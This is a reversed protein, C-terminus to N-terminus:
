GQTKPTQIPLIVIDVAAQKRAMRIGNRIQTNYSDDLEEFQRTQNNWNGSKSGDRTQYVLSVRGMRLFDVQQNTGPLAGSYADMTRGYESEIQYANLVAGFKESVSVNSQSLINKLRNVRDQRESKLFPLDLEIFKELGDLMRLMLPPIQRRIISIKDINTRIAQMDKEQDRILARQQDNFTRLGALEKLVAKYDNKLSNTKDSIVDINKQSRQGQANITATAAMVLDIKEQAVLASPSLLSLALTIGGIISLRKTHIQM